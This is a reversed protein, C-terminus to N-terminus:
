LNMTTLIGLSKHGVYMFIMLAWSFMLIGFALNEKQPKRIMLIMAILILLMELFEM